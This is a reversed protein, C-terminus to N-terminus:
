ILNVSNLCPVNLLSFKIFKSKRMCERVNIERERVYMCRVNTLTRQHANKYTLSTCMYMKKNVINQEPIRDM